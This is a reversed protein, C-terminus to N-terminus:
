DDADGEELFRAFAVTGIFAVLALVIAVDLLAGVDYRVSALALLAVAATGVLDLAVVRDPLTRGVVLRVFALAACVSVVLMVLDIWGAFSM